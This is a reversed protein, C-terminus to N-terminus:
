LAPIGKKMVEVYRDQMSIRPHQIGALRAQLDLWENTQLFKMLEWAAEVQPTGKWVAWSLTVPRTFKSPESPGAAPGCAAALVGLAGAAAGLSRRRTGTLSGAQNLPLRMANGGQRTGTRVRREAM